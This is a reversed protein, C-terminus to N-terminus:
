LGMKDAITVIRRMDRLVPKEILKGDTVVLGTIADYDNMTADRREQSDACGLRNIPYYVSRQWRTVFTRTPDSAHARQPEFNLKCVPSSGVNPSQRTKEM